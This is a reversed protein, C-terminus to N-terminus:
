RITRDTVGHPENIHLNKMGFVETRAFGDLEISDAYIPTPSRLQNQIWLSKAMYRAVHFFASVLLAIVFLGLVLEITAQGARTRTNM